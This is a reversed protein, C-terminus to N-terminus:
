IFSQPSASLAPGRHPRINKADSMNSEFKKHMRIVIHKTARDISLSYIIRLKLM